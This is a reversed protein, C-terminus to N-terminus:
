ALYIQQSVPLLSFVVVSGSVKEFLKAINDRNMLVLSRIEELADWLEHGKKKTTIKVDNQGTFAVVGSRIFAMACEHLTEPDGAIDLSLEAKGDERHQVEGVRVSIISKM